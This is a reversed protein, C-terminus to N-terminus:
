RDFGPPCHFDPAHCATLYVEGGDPYVVWALGGPRVNWHLRLGDPFDIWGSQDLGAVHSNLGWECRSVVLYTALLKQVDLAKLRRPPRWPAHRRYNEWAEKSSTIVARSLELGLPRGVPPYPERARRKVLTAPPPDVLTPPSEPRAM